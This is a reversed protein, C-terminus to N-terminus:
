SFSVVEPFSAHHNLYWKGGMPCWRCSVLWIGHNDWPTTFCQRAQPGALSQNGSPALVALILQHSPSAAPIFIAASKGRNPPHSGHRHRDM